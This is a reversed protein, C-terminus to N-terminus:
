VELAVRMTHLLMRMPVPQLTTTTTLVQIPTTHTHIAITHYGLTLMCMVMMVALHVTTFRRITIVMVQHNMTLITGTQNKIGMPHFIRGIVMTTTLSGHMGIIDMGITCGVTHDMMTLITIIAGMTGIAVKMIDQKELTLMHNLQMGM